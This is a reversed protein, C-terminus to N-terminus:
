HCTTSQIAVGEEVEEVEEVVGWLATAATTNAECCTLPDLTSGKHANFATVDITKVWSPFFEKWHNKRFVVKATMDFIVFTAPTKVRTEPDLLVATTLVPVNLKKSL